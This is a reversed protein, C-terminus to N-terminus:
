GEAGDRAEPSGLSDEEEGERLLAPPVDNSAIHEDCSFVGAAGVGRGDDVGRM